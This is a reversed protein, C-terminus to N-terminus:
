EKMRILAIKGTGECEECDEWEDGCHECCTPCLDTENITGTINDGCCSYIGGGDGGCEDCIEFRVRNDEKKM